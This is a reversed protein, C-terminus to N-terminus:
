LLFILLFKMHIGGNRKRLRIGDNWVIYDAHAYGNRLDPDFTEIIVAKINELGLEHSHGLLDKMIKNANPAILAGSAKHKAVLNQFPWLSYDDGSAIRMM